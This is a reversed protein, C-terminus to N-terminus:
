SAADDEHDEADEVWVDIEVAGATEFVLDLHFFQGHSFHRQVGELELWIAGPQLTLVQGPEVAIAGINHVGLTGDSGIAQAQMVVQGAFDVSADILRDPVDGDNQITLYVKTSHGAEATEYTWAHSVVLDGVEFTDGAHHALAAGAAMIAMGAGIILNRVDDEGGLGV